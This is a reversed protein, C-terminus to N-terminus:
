SYTDMNTPVLKAYPVNRIRRVLGLSAKLLLGGRISESVRTRPAFDRLRVWLVTSNSLTNEMTIIYGFLVTM